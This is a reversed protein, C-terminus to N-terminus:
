IGATELVLWQFQLLMMLFLILLSLLFSAVETSMNYGNIYM